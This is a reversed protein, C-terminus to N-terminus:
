EAPHTSYLNSLTALDALAGSFTATGYHGTRVWPALAVGLGAARARACFAYDDSLHARTGPDIMPQFLAVVDGDLAYAGAEDPAPTWALDAHRAALTDLVAARVLMLGTGVAEAAVPVDIAFSTVGPALRVQFDGAYRALLAPNDGALGKEAAMAVQKWAISRRPVPAGLIAIGPDANMAAVMRAIDAADFSVDADVFLLHTARSARARHALIARARDVAPVDVTLTLDFAAGADRVAFGLALLSRVYGASAGGYSPTAVMLHCDGPFAPSAAM